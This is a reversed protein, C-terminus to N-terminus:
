SQSLNSDDFDSGRRLNESGLLVIRGLLIESERWGSPPSNVGGWGVGGCGKRGNPFGQIKGVGETKHSFESFEGKKSFNLFSM